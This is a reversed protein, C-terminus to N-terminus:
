FNNIKKLSETIVSELTLHPNNKVIKIVINQVLGKQYGLGELAMIGDKILDNDVNIVTKDSEITINKINTFQKVISNNKLENIIRLAVKSGIGSARCFLEKNENIIASFIENVTAISMIKLAMKNGVGNVKCLINFCEQENEEMFGFLTISDEKVITEILLSIKNNINQIKDLTKNSCYIKYCVGNVDLLLYDEKIKDIIGTLKGIM